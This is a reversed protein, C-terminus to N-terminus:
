PQFKRWSSKSPIPGNRRDPVGVKTKCFACRWGTEVTGCVLDPGDWCPALLERYWELCSTAVGAEARCRSCEFQKLFREEKSRRRTRGGKVVKLRAKATHPKPM